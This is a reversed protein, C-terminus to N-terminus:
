GVGPCRTWTHDVAHEPSTGARGVLSDGELTAEVEVTTQDFTYFFTVRQGDTRGGKIEMCDHGIAECASGTVEEGNQNLKLYGIGEVTGQCWDGSVGASETSPADAPTGPGAPVPEPQAPQTPKPAAAGAGECRWWSHDIIHSPSTAARGVLRDGELAAEVEVDTQDFRYLFNLRQGDTRGGLIDLCDKGPGECVVGAVRDDATHDLKMYGIGEVANQCWEGSIGTPAPPDQNGKTGPQGQTTPDQRGDHDCGLTGFGAFAFIAMTCFSTRLKM